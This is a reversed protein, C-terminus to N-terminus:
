VGTCASLASAVQAALRVCGAQAHPAAVAAPRVRQRQQAAARRQGHAVLAQGARAALDPWGPARCPQQRIDGHGRRSPRRQRASSAGRRSSRSVSSHGRCMGLHALFLVM